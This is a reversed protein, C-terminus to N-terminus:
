PKDLWSVFERYGKPTIKFPKNRSKDTQPDDKILGDNRLNYLFVRGWDDIDVKEEDILKKKTERNDHYTDDELDEKIICYGLLAYKGSIKMPDQIHIRTSSEENEDLYFYEQLESSSVNIKEAVRDLPSSEESDESAGSDDEQVFEENLPAQERPIHEEDNDETHESPQSPKSSSAMEIRSLIFDLQESIFEETGEIRIENGGVSVKVVSNGNETSM